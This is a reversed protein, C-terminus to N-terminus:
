CGWCPLKLTFMLSDNVIEYMRHKRVRLVERRGQPHNAKTALNSDTPLGHSTVQVNWHSSCKGGEAGSTRQTEAFGGANWRGFSLSQHHCTVNFCFFIYIYISVYIYLIWVGGSFSPSVIYSVFLRSLVWNPVECLMVVNACFCWLNQCKLTLFHNFTSQVCAFFDTTAGMLSVSNNLINYEGFKDGRRWDMGTHKGPRLDPIGFWQEQFCLRFVGWRVQHVFPSSSKFNLDLGWSTDLIFLFWVGKMLRCPMNVMVLARELIGFKGTGPMHFASYGPWLRGNWIVFWPLTILRYWLFCPGTTKAALPLSPSKKGVNLLNRQIELITPVEFIVIPNRRCSLFRRKLAPRINLNWSDTKSCASCMYVIM